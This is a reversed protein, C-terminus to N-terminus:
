SAVAAGIVTIVFQFGSPFFYRGAPTVLSALDRASFNPLFQLHSLEGTLRGWETYVLDHELPVRSLSRGVRRLVAHREVVGHGHEDVRVCQIAEVERVGLRLRAVQTQTRGGVPPHAHHGVRDPSSGIDFRDAEEARSARAPTLARRVARLISKLSMGSAVAVWSPAM